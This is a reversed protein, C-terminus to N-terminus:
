PERGEPRDIEDLTEFYNNIHKTFRRIRATKPDLRGNSSFPRTTGAHVAGVNNFSLNTRVQHVGTREQSMYTITKREMGRSQSRHAGQIQSLLSQVENSSMCISSPKMDGITKMKALSNAASPAQSMIM